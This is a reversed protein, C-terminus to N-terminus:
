YYEIDVAPLYVDLFIYNVDDRFKKPIKLNELSNFKFTNPNLSFASDEIELKNNNEIIIKKIGSCGNFANFTESFFECRTQDNSSKCSRYKNQTITECGAMTMSNLKAKLSAKQCADKKSLEYGLPYQVTLEGSWKETGFSFAIQGFVM